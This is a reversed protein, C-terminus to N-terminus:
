KDSPQGYAASYYKGIIVGIEVAADPDLNQFELGVLNNAAVNRVVAVVERRIRESPDVIVFRGIDGLKYRQEAEIQFGGRGLMRLAGVRKGQSSQVELNVNSPLSVREFKRREDM